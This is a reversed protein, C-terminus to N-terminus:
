ILLGVFRTLGKDGSPEARRIVYLMQRIHSGDKRRGFVAPPNPQSHTASKASVEKGSTTVLRTKTGNTNRNAKVVVRQEGKAAYNTKDRKTVVNNRRSRTTTNATGRRKVVEKPRSKKASNAMEQRNAGEKQRCKTTPNTTEPM